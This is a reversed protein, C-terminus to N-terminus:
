AKQTTALLSQVKAFDKIGPASEAGSAIDIGAPRTRAIAKHANEPVIGGALIVPLPDAQAIFSAAREWDITRGTGGYVGPAHADLLLAFQDATRTPLNQYSEIVAEQESPDPLSLSRIVPIGSSLFHCLEKTTEDGHLQVGDIVKKELLDPALERANNVFVGVRLIQNQFAPLFELAKEPSCFRKSKPFFNVGLAPVRLAALENADHSTTVGCIKLSPRTPSFFTSFDPQSL